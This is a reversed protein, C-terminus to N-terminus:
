RALEVLYLVYKEGSKTGILFQTGGDKLKYKKKFEDPSLIYNRTIVNIKGSPVLQKLEKKPNQIEQLIKFIRGPIQEAPLADCTFLHSNPHLKKLGFHQGFIKFAGAKLISSTPEILYNGAAGLVSEAKEEAEFTFSFERKRDPHLDVAIIKQYEIKPEQQWKLLVEKVENRVSIVWVQQIEPIEILAQKIDLMPSAKILISEAKSKLLDWHVVVDPECDALKYLKQNQGGRRAPDVYILDFFEQSKSLFDLSDGQIVTFKDPSLQKFNHQAIKALEEQRECYIAKEFNQALYYTDIGLGGTLDIMSKGKVLEAKFIATDESSAQEMSISAPFLLNPNVAWSPIKNKAKQRAHIQQVAFKLDFKTKGAYKLLLQAPVEHLHDQVFQKFTETDFQSIDM